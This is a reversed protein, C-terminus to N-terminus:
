EYLKHGLAVALLEGKAHFAISAIPPCFDRSGIWEKTNADWICVEHDLSGSALIEVHVPHFRVM